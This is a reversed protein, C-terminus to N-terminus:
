SVRAELQRLTLGSVPDRWRPALSAAPALVFHRRRFLRHPITLDPSVWVGDSWLVIDLDLPRAAWRQGRRRRGFEVEVEQLVALLEPPDLETEVLCAANAYRRLSPGVPATEITESVAEVSLGKQVLREVASALVARPGGVGAVRMNSGLGIMYCHRRAEGM